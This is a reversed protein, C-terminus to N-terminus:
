KWFFSFSSVLVCVQVVACSVGGTGQTLVTKGELRRVRWKERGEKGEAKWEGLGGDIRGDMWARIARWATGGVTVLAASEGDGLGEPARVVQEDSVVRWGQVTGDTEAGGLVKTIDLSEESYVGSIWANPHLVVKEGIRNSWISNPGASHIVGAGDSGPVLLHAHPGPYAPSHTAILLDRFNLSAATLRILTEGPGPTPIPKNVQTLGRPTTADSPIAWATNTTSSM